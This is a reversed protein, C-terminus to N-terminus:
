MFTQIYIYIRDLDMKMSQSLLTQAIIQPKTAYWNTIPIQLAYHYYKKYKFSKMTIIRHGLM